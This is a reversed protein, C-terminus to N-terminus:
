PKNNGEKYIHGGQEESTRENKATRENARWKGKHNHGENPIFEHTWETLTGAEKTCTM